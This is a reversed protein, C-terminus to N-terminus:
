LMENLQNVHERDHDLISEVMLRSEEDLDGRVVEESMQIGYKDEGRLASKLIGERTGPTMMGSMAEAMSGMLGVDDVPKGGLNQIREAVKIAHQKHDQQIEQLKRKLVPDDTKEIYDDYAHIGMYHGKLFTNLERVAVDKKDM